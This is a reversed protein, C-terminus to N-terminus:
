GTAIRPWLAEAGADSVRAGLKRAWEREDGYEDRWSWLRRSLQGLEYEKTMGIAGHAQHAAATGTSACEGVVIKASAADFFDIEEHANIGAVAVAMVAQQAAEALRVVHREVAQFRGIPRGFQEREATYRVTLETARELAGAMLAARSLAGRLRLQEATDAPVPWTNKAPVVVNHLVVTRRQEQALNVQEDLQLEETPLLVATSQDDIDLIALIAASVSAWPVHRATGTVTFADGTRAVQLETPDDIVTLVGDPLSRKGIALLWGALLAHEAFPVSSASRGLEHLVACADAISGGSGDYQEPVSITAFGGECLVSWLTSNWGASEAAVVEDPSSHDALIPRLASRIEQVNESM